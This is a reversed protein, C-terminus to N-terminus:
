WRFFRYPDDWEEPVDIYLGNLWRREPPGAATVPAAFHALLPTSSRAGMNALLRSLLFSARRYTRKVNPKASYELQWPVLQCFAVHLGETQGLVGDGFVTAGAALLPLDRPDRNHVDAPGVGAFASRTDFPDFYAAIHEAKRMRVKVPLFGNVGQEDLGIAVAHGGSKLWSAIAPARPALERGGGPGVVLLEAPALTAGAPNAAAIGASELHKIGAPDGAYVVKRSADPEWSSVYHLINRALTEAAPDAETRGTLDVQCFLVMGTGERYELLPSYQLSFGGDLIPLFNGRAPKEILVSAVSGRNGCRWVRTVSIDCWTVTPGYRPRKEYALRAPLITAEGHWDRLHESSLGSVAPHDPVRLFVQRLGYEEVRFGLRKELVESSQEFVIVKLGDRVRDILPATGDITLANKGVILTDRASLEAGADIPRYAAGLAALLARTEGKPDFVAFKPAADTSHSNRRPTAVADSPRRLVDIAFSDKQTEGTSFRVRAHLDYRGAALAEPLGVTLRIREIQGTPVTIRRHGAIARLDRPISMAWDCDCAVTTRSNNVVILQKEVQTGPYFNHAKSTFHPEPGSIYAL